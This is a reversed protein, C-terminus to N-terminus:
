SSVSYHLSSDIRAPDPVSGQAHAAEIKAPGQVRREQVFIYVGATRLMNKQGLWGFISDVKSRDCFPLM